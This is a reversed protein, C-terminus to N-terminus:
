AFTIIWTENGFAGKWTYDYVNYDIPSFNDVGGVKVTKKTNKKNEEDSYKGEMFSGLLMAEIGEKTHYDNNYSLTEFM